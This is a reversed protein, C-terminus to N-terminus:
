PARPQLRAVIALTALRAAQGRWRRCPTPIRHSGNAVVATIRIGLKANAAPPPPVPMDFAPLPAGLPAERAQAAGGIGGSLAVVLDRSM